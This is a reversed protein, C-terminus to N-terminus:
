GMRNRLGGSNQKDRYASSGFAHYSDPLHRRRQSRGPNQLVTGSRVIRKGRKESHFEFSQSTTEAM